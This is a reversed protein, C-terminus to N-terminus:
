ELSAADVVFVASVGAPASGACGRSPLGRGAMGVAAGRGAEISAEVPEHCPDRSAGFLSGTASVMPVNECTPGICRLAPGPPERAQCDFAATHRQDYSRM